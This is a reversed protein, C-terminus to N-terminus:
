GLEDLMAKARDRTLGAAKSLVEDLLDRAGEVDGIRRFEDALEIKRQLPDADDGELDFSM